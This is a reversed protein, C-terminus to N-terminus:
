KPSAAPMVCELYERYTQAVAADRAAIDAPALNDLVDMETIMVKLGM